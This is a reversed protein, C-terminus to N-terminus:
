NSLVSMDKTWVEEAAGNSRPTYLGGVGPIFMKVMGMSWSFIYRYLWTEDKRDYVATDLSTTTRVYLADPQPISLCDSFGNLSLTTIFVSCLSPFFAFVRSNFRFIVGRENQLQDKNLMNIESPHIYCTFCDEGTVDEDWICKFPGIRINDKNFFAKCIAPEYSEM